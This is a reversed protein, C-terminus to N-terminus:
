ASFSTGCGCSKKANPNNYTFGAGNLGDQYDVEIGRLFLTSRPDVLVKVGEAEYSIVSDGEGAKEEFSMKYSMGSCGGGVVSIRLFSNPKNERKMLSAVHQRASPTLEIVNAASSM